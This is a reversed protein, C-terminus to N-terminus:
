PRALDWVTGGSVRVLQDPTIEFNVRDSGAAAWVTDFALLTGDVFVRLARRHGFPPVAGVPFGTAESVQEPAARRARSGGAAAALKAEDLRNAGSVLAVVVDGDVEFVLSKVIRAVEVGLAAAAEAATRTPGVFARTEIDVGSASAAEAVRAVEPDM